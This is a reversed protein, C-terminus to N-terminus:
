CQCTLIEGWVDTTGLTIPQITDGGVEFEDISTRVGLAESHPHIQTECLSNLQFSTMLISELGPPFFITNKYLLYSFILLNVTFINVM